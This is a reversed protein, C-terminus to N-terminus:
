LIRNFLGFGLVPEASIVFGRGFKAKKYGILDPGV